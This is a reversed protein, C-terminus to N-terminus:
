RETQYVEDFTMQKLQFKPKALEEESYFHCDIDADLPQKDRWANVIAQANASLGASVVDCM